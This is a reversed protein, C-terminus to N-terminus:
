RPKFVCQSQQGQGGAEGDPKPQPSKTAEPNDMAQGAPQDGQCAASQGAAATKPAQAKPAPALSEGPPEFPPFVEKDKPFLPEKPEKGSARMMSREWLRQNLEALDSNTPLNDKPLGDHVVLRKSFQAMFEADQYKRLMPTDPRGLSWAFDNANQEDKIVTVLERSGKRMVAYGRPSEGPEAIRFETFEIGALTLIKRSDDGPLRPVLPVYYYPREEPLNRPFLYGPYDLQRGADIILLLSNNVSVERRDWDPVGNDAVLKELLKLQYECVRRTERLFQSFRDEAAWVTGLSNVCIGRVKDWRTVGSMALGPRSLNVIVRNLTQLRLEGFSVKEPERDEIIVDELSQHREWYDPDSYSDWWEWSAPIMGDPSREIDIMRSMPLGNGRTPERKSEDFLSDNDPLAPEPGKGAPGDAALRTGQGEQAGQAKKRSRKGKAQEGAAPEAVVPVAPVFDGPLPHGPAQAVPAQSVSGPNPLAVLRFAERAEEALSEIGPAKEPPHGMNLKAAVKSVGKAVLDLYGNAVSASLGGEVLRKSISEYPEGRRLIAYIREDEGAAQSALLGGDGEGLPSAEPAVKGKAGPLAGIPIPGPAVTGLAEPLEGIAVEPAMEPAVGFFAVPPAEAPPIDAPPNGVPPIASPRPPESGPAAPAGEPGRPGWPDGPDRRGLSLENVTGKGLSPAKGDQSKKASGQGEPGLEPEWAPRMGNRVTELIWNGFSRGAGSAPAAQSEGKAQGAQGAEGLPAGPGQGQDSGLSAGLKQGNKTKDNEMSATKSVAVEKQGGLAFSPASGPSGPGQGQGPPQNEIAAGPSAAPDPKLVIVEPEWLGQAALLGFGIAGQAQGDGQDRSPALKQGHAASVASARPDIGNPWHGLAMIEMPPLDPFGFPSSVLEDGEPRAFPSGMAPAEYSGMPWPDGPAMHRRERMAWVNAERIGEAVETVPKLKLGPALSVLFGKAREAEACARVIESPDSSIGKVWGQSHAMPNVPSYDLGMDQCLMWSTIGAVLDGRARSDGFADKERDLRSPQRAWHALCELLSAHYSGPSPFRGKEQISITDRGLDYKPSGKQVFNIKAGSAQVLQSLAEEPAWPAGLPWPGPIPRGDLLTVMSANFVYFRKFWPKQLSVEYQVPNGKRDRVPEGEKDLVRRVATWQWFEVASPDAGQRVKWGLHQAQLFSYWRPDSYGSMSLLLRNYGKYVIKSVPNYPMGGEGALWDRQWPAQGVTVLQCLENAAKARTKYLETRTEAGKEGGNHGKDKNWAM